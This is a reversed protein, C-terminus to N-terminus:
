RHGLLASRLGADIAHRGLWISFLAHAFDDGPIIGAVVEGYVVLTGLGPRRIFSVADGPAMDRYLNDLRERRAHLSGRQEAPLGAGLTARTAEVLAAASVARRFHFDLRAAPGGLPDGAPDAADVRLVVEYVAFVGGWRLTGRGREHWAPEAAAAHVALLCLLVPLLRTM